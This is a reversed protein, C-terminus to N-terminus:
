APATEVPVDYHPALTFDLVREVRIVLQREVQPVPREELQPEYGDAVAVDDIRELLGLLQYGADNRVDWVAAAIAGKVRVNAITGPCFWEKVIVKDGGDQELSGAVTIHPMGDTSATAIFVHGVKRALEVVSVLLDGTM